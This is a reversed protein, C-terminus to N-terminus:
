GRRLEPLPILWEGRFGPHRAICQDAFRWANVLVLAPQDRELLESPLVPLHLGPSFRGHKRPNDDVLCHHHSGIGFAYLLTTTTNSAGYGVV